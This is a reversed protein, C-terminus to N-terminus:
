SRYRKVSQKLQRNTELARCEKFALAIGFRTANSTSKLHPVSEIGGRLLCLLKCQNSLTDCSPSTHRPTSQTDFKTVSPWACSFREGVFCM